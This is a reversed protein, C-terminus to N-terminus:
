WGKTAHEIALVSYATVLDPISEMWRSNKNSWSGDGAQSSLLQGVLEARWDHSVDQADVVQEAGYAKLARSMTLYYYFLGEQGLGPNETVSWHMRAWQWAAQVRPDDKALKAYVMSKLGAYTMGAYSRLGGEPTEGAKSEGPRYVFGGDNSAWPQDNTTKLNQCRQLYLIAHQYALGTREQLDEPAGIAAAGAANEQECLDQLDKIAELAFATNSLDARHMGEGEEPANREYGWGGYQTDQTGFGESEDAQLDLLHGWARNVLDADQPLGAQALATVCVSTSYTAYYKDYIGGDPQAFSRIYDLAKTVTVSKAGYGEEGSGLMAMVVLATIAPQDQWSGNPKQQASLHGLARRVAAKSELLVSPDRQGAPAALAPVALPLAGIALALTMVTLLKPSVKRV